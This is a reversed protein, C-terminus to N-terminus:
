GNTEGCDEKYINDPEGKKIGGWESAWVHIVKHNVLRVVLIVTDTLSIENDNFNVIESYDSDISKNYKDLIYASEVLESGFMSKAYNTVDVNM